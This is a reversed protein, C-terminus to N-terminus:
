IKDGKELIDLVETNKKILTTLYSEILAELDDVLGELVPDLRMDAFQEHLSTLIINIGRNSKELKEIVMDTGM